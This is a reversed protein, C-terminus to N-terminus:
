SAESWKVKVGSGRVGSVGGDCTSSHVSKNSPRNFPVVVGLLTSARKSFKRVVFGLLAFLMLSGSIFRYRLKM